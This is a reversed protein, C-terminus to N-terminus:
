KNEQIREELTTVLALGSPLQEPVLPLNREDNLSGLFAAIDGEDRDSLKPGKTMHVHWHIRLQQEKPAMHGRTNNYFGVVDKLNDFRGNHFYPATKSINRLTPVRMAGVLFEDPDLAGAGPDAYGDKDAPAGIVAMESDTFLPPVHCQSCRAVFGRFANYGRIEKESLASEDGHAYRDYRSNLSVLTTQFAALALAINELTPENGFAQQFLHQYSDSDSVARVVGEKTNGMEDEALLPLTAQEPLTDARGDWMFRKLFGVNWLTPTARKLTKHQKGNWAGMSTALGDSLGKDVQHCSACSMDQNVSLVPDFFLYRGLDIQEPTYPSALEPLNAQVGGHQAPSDYFDYLSRLKCTGDSILEFSAPCTKKLTIESTQTNTDSALANGSILISLSGLAVFRKLLPSFLKM